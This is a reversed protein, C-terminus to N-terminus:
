RLRLREGLRPQPARFPPLIAADAEGRGAPGRLAIVIEPAAERHPGTGAVPRQEAFVQEGVEAAAVLGHARPDERPERLHDLPRFLLRPVESATRPSCPVPLVITPVTRLRM